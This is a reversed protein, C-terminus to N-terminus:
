VAVVVNSTIRSHSYFSYSTPLPNDSFWCVFFNLWEKSSKGLKHAYSNTFEGSISQVSLTYGYGLPSKVTAQAILAYKYVMFAAHSM